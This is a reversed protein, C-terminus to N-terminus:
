GHAHPDSTAALTEERSELKDGLLRRVAVYFVPIFLVSLLATLTTLFYLKKMGYTQIIIIEDGGGCLTFNALNRTVSIGPGPIQM